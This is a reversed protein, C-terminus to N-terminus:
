RAYLTSTSESNGPGNIKLLYVGKTLNGFNVTESSNGATRTIIKTAMLQGTSNILRVHYVGGPMGNMQLHVIGATAPNPYVLLSPRSHGNNMKIVASYSITGTVNTSKIRYFNNGPLANVDLWQYSAAGGNDAIANNTGISTFLRGDASREVSYELIGSENEVQWQIAINKDQQRANISRFTVPLTGSPAALAINNMSLNFITNPAKPFFRIEDINSFYAPNLLDSQSVTGPVYNVADPTFDVSGIKIGDNYTEITIVNTYGWDYLTISQLSFNVSNDASKIVMAPVGNTTAVVDPGSTIGTYGASGSFYYNNDHWIITSGPYLTTHDAAATYMMLNLGTIGSTGGDGDEAIGDAWKAVDNSSFTLTYPLSVQAQSTIATLIYITFSLFAFYLKRM